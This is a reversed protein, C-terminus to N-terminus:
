PFCIICVQSFSLFGLRLGLIKVLTPIKFSKEHTKGSSSRLFQRLSHDYAIEHFVYSGFEFFYRFSENQAQNLDM